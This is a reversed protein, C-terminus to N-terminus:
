NADKGKLVVCGNNGGFAQSNNLAVDVRKRRGKNPVCDIACEGDQNELNITPPIGGGRIALCCAITELAASAGMTHGLMSKISSMPINNIRKGFVKTAAACEAKDNEVTGTGHASIYDIKDISIGSAKISREISTSIGKVSPDTMDYADCSVGYGLIEAYINAKRQEASELSELFIIGAGEGLMMGQRNKDFPQCKEPAMAFIRRFGTFAIRSLSDVGGALMCDVRGARILDYGYGIAFNGAACANSFMLNNGQLNLEEALNICITSAPLILARKALANLRPNKISHKVIQETVQIEGMTTGLAVGIKFKSMLDPTIKSDKLALKGAVIAFQSAKGMHKVKRKDIFKKPDFGRVEGAYHRDYQATDFSEIKSIGSKGAMLNKWFEEWGIGLSSVVGLGTVVVRRKHDIKNLIM